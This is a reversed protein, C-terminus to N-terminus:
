NKLRVRAAIILPMLMMSAGGVIAGVAVVAVGGVAVALVVSGVTAAIGVLFLAFGGAIRRVLFARRKNRPLAYYEHEAHLVFAHPKGPMVNVAIMQAVAGCMLLAALPGGVGAAGDIVLFAGGGLLALVLILVSFVVFGRVRLRALGMLGALGLTALMGEAITAHSPALPTLTSVALVGAAALLVMVVSVVLLYRKTM